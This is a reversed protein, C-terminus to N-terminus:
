DRRLEDSDMKLCFISKARFGFMEDEQRESVIMSHPCRGDVQRGTRRNSPRPFALPPNSIFSNKFPSGLTLPFIANQGWFGCSIAPILNRTSAQSGAALGAHTYGRELATAVRVTAAILYTVLLHLDELYLSQLATNREVEDENEEDEDDDTWADCTGPKVAHEICNLEEEGDPVEM